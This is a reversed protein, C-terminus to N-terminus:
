MHALPPDLGPPITPARERVNQKQGKVTKTAETWFYRPPPPPPRTPEGQDAVTHLFINWTQAAFERLPKGEFM